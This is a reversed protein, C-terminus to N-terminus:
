PAIQPLPMAHCSAATSRQPLCQQPARKACRVPWCPAHGTCPVSVTCAGLTANISCNSKHPATARLHCIATFHQARKKSKLPQKSLRDKAESCWMQRRSFGFANHPRAQTRAQVCAHGCAAGRQTYYASTGMSSRPRSNKAQWMVQPVKVQRPKSNEQYM